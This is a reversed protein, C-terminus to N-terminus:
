FVLACESIYALLLREPHWVGCEMRGAPNCLAGKDAGFITECESRKM